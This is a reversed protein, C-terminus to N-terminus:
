VESKLQIRTFLKKVRGQYGNEKLHFQSKFLKKGGFCLRIKNEQQDKELKQLKNKCSALKRKKQHKEGKDSSNKRSITKELGKIKRKLNKIQELVLKKKAHMKGELQIKCSNFQRATIHFEKIYGSKIDNTNKGKILDSFLKREMMSLLFADKELLANDEEDVIIRTQYTVQKM